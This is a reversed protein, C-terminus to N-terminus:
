ENLRVSNLVRDFVGRYSALRDEPVVTIAYFLNGNRLQTTVVGIAERQGDAAANSVVARVGRHGGITVREYASPRSMNPNGQALSALLEDTADLLDHSENRSVGLQIGHTFIGQGHAGDPAFTVSDNNPLERWNAPVAVRFLNGETYTRYNTSPLEVRGGPRAGDRSPVSATRAASAAEETTPAKPLSDLHAKVEAFARNAPLPNVIRIREAEKTIYAVRNGPNPHDSMWQPGGAGGQQEITRFVNAMDRPDYGAAAMIHAGEIDAQQEYERSFRLFATGFGFQSAGSVVQGWGGGIVAGLVQGLASGAQYRGAKSAQATGHRLVVHSIEHAMVGAIEGEAHATEIMGRNVFMPGGPLASANIERVNVVDFTYQFEPRQLERPIASVLRRGVGEVYASVDRDDLLPLQKKLERAAQAGLEVDQSPPYQNDPPTVASQAALTVCGLVFAGLVAALRSSEPTDTTLCAMDV